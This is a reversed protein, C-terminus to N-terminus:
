RRTSAKSYHHSPGKQCWVFNASVADPDEGALALVDALFSEIRQNM